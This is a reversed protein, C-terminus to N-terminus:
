QGAALNQMFTPVPGAEFNYYHAWSPRIAIRTMTKYISRVQSEFEKRQGEDMSKTAAALFEDPVGDVDDLAAIGRLLLARPPGDITDITLAVDPRASLSRVKPSTPATCVVVEHGNWYFGIPIVRPSGDASSYALRALAGHILLDQAGPDGLERAVGSMDM